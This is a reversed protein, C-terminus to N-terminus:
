GKAELQWRSLWSPGWQALAIPILLCRCYRIRITHYPVSYRGKAKAKSSAVRAGLCLTSRSVGGFLERGLKNAQCEPGGHILNANVM